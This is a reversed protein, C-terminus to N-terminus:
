GLMAYKDAKTIHSWSVTSDLAEKIEKQNILFPYFCDHYGNGENDDSIIVSYDGRGANIQEDCLDRLEKVTM